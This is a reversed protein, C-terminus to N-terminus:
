IRSSQYIGEDHARAVLAQGAASLHIPDGYTGYLSSVAYPLFGTYMDIVPIDNDLAVQMMGKHWSEFTAVSVYDTSMPVYTTYVVDGFAKAATILTQMKSQTNALTAGHSFDNYWGDLFTVNLANSDLLVPIAAMTNWTNANGGPVVAAAMTSVQMATAGCNYIEIGPNAATRTNVGSLFADGVGQVFTVSTATGGNPVTYTGMHVATDANNAVTYATTTGGDFSIAFNGTYLTNTLYLLDITDFTNGPTFTIKDGANTLQWATDGLTNYNGLFTVGSGSYSFRPDCQNYVSINGGARWVGGDGIMADARANLGRNRMLGALQMPYSKMRANGMMGQGPVAQNGAPYSDGIFVLRSRKTNQAAHGVAAALRATNTPKFNVLYGPGNTGAGSGGNGAIVTATSGWVGASVLDAALTMEYM